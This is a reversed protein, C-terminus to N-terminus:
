KFCWGCAVSIYIYIYIYVYFKGRENLVGGCAVSIYICLVQRRMKFCWRVGSIYIYM